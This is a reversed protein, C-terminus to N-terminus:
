VLRGRRVRFFAFLTILGTLMLIVSEPEPTSSVYVLDEQMGGTLGTANVDTVVRGGAYDIDGPAGNAFALNVQEYWYKGSGDTTRFVGDGPTVTAWIADHIGSWNERTQYVAFQTALWIAKQYRVVADSVGVLGLRTNELAGELVPSINATWVAGNSVSNLFDVCYITFSGRTPDSALQASYPGIYVQPNSFTSIVGGASVLRFTEQDQLVGAATPTWTGLQAAARAPVASLVLGLLLVARWRTACSHAPLM